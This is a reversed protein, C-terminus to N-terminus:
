SLMEWAKKLACADIIVTGVTVVGNIILAFFENTLLESYLFLLIDM